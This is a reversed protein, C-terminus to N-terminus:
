FAPSPPNLNGIKTSNIIENTQVKAKIVYPVYFAETFCRESATTTLKKLLSAKPSVAARVKAIMKRSNGKQALPKNTPDHETVCQAM